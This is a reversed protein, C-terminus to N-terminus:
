FDMYATDMNVDEELQGDNKPDKQKNEPFKMASIGDNHIKNLFEIRM